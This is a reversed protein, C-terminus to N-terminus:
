SANEFSLSTRMHLLQFAIVVMACQLCVRNVINLLSLCGEGADNCATAFLSCLASFTYTDLM